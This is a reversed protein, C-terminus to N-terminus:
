DWDICIFSYINNFFFQATNVIMSSFGAAYQPQQIHSGAPPAPPALLVVQVIGFCSIAIPCLRSAILQWHNLEAM